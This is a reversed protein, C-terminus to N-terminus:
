RQMRVMRTHVCRCSKSVEFCCLHLHECTCVYTHIYMCIFLVFVLLVRANLLFLYYIYTYGLGQSANPALCTHCVYTHTIIVNTCTHGHEGLITVYFLHATDLRRPSVVHLGLVSPHCHVEAMNSVRTTGGRM